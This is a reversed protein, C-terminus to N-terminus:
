LFQTSAKERSTEITDNVWAGNAIQEKNAYRNLVPSIAETASATYVPLIKLKRQKRINGKKLL